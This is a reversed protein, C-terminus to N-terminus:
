GLDHIQFGKIKNSIKGRFNDIKSNIDKQTTCEIILITDEYCGCADVQRRGILFNKGVDIDKFGLKNLFRIIDKVHKEGTETYNVL